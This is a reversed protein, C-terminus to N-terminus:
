WSEKGPSREETEGKVQRLEVELFGEWVVAAGIVEGTQEWGGQGKRGM